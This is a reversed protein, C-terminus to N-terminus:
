MVATAEGGEKTFQTVDLCLRLGVSYHMQVKRALSRSTNEQNCGVQRGRCGRWSSTDAQSIRGDSLYLSFELVLMCVVNSKM